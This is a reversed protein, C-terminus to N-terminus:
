PSAAKIVPTPANIASLHAGCDMKRAGHTCATLILLLVILSTKM